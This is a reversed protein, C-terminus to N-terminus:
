DRKRVRVLNLVEEIASPKLIRISAIYVVGGFLTLAVLRTLAPLDAMANKASLIAAVMIASCLAPVLIVAAYRRWRGGIVHMAALLSAISSFVMAAALAAVAMPASENRMVWLPLATAPLSVLAIRLLYDARGMALLAMGALMTVSQVLAPACVIMVLVSAPAWKQGFVVPVLDDALAGIGMMLPFALIAVIGTARFFGERFRDMDEQLQAFVPFTARVVTQSFQAIPLWTITQAMSILGLTTVGMTPGLILSTLNRTFHGVVSSLLLQGSFRLLGSISSLDFCFSPRWRARAFLYLMTILTGVVPQFALAWVGFGATALSVATCAGAISGVLTGVAVDRFALRRSLLAQPLVAMSSLLLNLGTALMLWRLAPQEFYAAIWPGLAVLLLAASLAVGVNVWFCSSLMRQSLEKRQILAAGMGFDVLLQALENVFLAMAFIGFESPGLFRALVIMTLLAVGQRIAQSSGLWAVNRVTRHSLSGSESDKM